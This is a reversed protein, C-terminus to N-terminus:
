FPGVPKKKGRLGGLIKKPNGQRPPFGVVFFIKHWRGLGGGCPEIKEQERPQGIRQILANFFEKLRKGARVRLDDGTGRGAVVAREVFLPCHIRKQRSACRERNSPQLVSAIILIGSRSPYRQEIHGGVIVLEQESCEIEENKGNREPVERLKVFGTMLDSMLSSCALRSDSFIQPWHRSKVKRHGTFAPIPAVISAFSDYKGIERRLKRGAIIDTSPAGSALAVTLSPMGSFRGSSFCPSRKLVGTVTNAYRSRRTAAPSCSSM